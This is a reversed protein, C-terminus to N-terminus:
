GRDPLEYRCITYVADAKYTGGGQVGHTGYIVFKNINTPVEEWWSWQDTLFTQGRESYQTARTAWTRGSTDQVSSRFTLVANDPNQTVQTVSIDLGHIFGSLTGYGEVPKSASSAMAPTVMTILLAFMMSTIHIKRKNIM